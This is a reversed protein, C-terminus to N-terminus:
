IRQILSSRGIPTLDLLNDVILFANEEISQQTTKRSQQHGKMCNKILSGVQKKFINCSQQCVDITIKISSFRAM